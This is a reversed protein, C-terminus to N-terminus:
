RGRVGGFRDEPLFIRAEWFDFDLSEPLKPPVGKAERTSPVESLCPEIMGELRDMGRVNDPSPWGGELRWSSTPGGQGQGGTSPRVPNGSGTTEDGQVAFRPGQQFKLSCFSCGSSLMADWEWLSGDFSRCPRGLGALPSDVVFLCCRPLEDRESGRQEYLLM